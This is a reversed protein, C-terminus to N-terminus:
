PTPLLEMDRERGTKVLIEQGFKPPFCCRLQCYVRHMATKARVSRVKTNNGISMMPFRFIGKARRSPRHISKAPDSKLMTPQTIRITVACRVLM